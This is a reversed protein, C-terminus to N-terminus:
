NCQELLLSLLLILSLHYNLQYFAQVTEIDSTCRQLLDGTNANSHYSYSLNQIHVYMKNRMDYSIEQSLKGRFFGNSFLIISRLFQYIVLILSVNIIAKLGELSKFYELLFFPLQVDTQNGELVVDFIYKIFLPVYSYTFPAFAALFLVILLIFWHKKTWKFLNAINRM